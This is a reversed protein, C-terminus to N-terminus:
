QRPSQANLLLALEAAQAVAKKSAANVMGVPLVVGQPQCTPGVSVRHPACPPIIVLWVVLPIM